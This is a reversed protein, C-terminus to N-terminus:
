QYSLEGFGTPVASLCGRGVSRRRTLRPRALCRRSLCCRAFCRWALGSLTSGYNITLRSTGSDLSSKAGTTSPERLLRPIAATDALRQAQRHHTRRPSQDPPASPLTGDRIIRSAHNRAPQRDFQHRPTRRQGPRRPWRASAGRHPPWWTTRNDRRCQVAVIVRCWHACIIIQTNVSRHNHKSIATRETLPV